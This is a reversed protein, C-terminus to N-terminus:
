GSPLFTSVIMALNIIYLVVVVLWMLANFRPTNAYEGM